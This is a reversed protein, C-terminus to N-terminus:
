GWYVKLFDAFHIGKSIDICLFQVQDTGSFIVMLMYILWSNGYYHQMVFQKQLGLCRLTRKEISVLKCAPEFNFTKPQIQSFKTSLKLNLKPSNQRKEEDRTSEKERENVPQVSTPCIMQETTFQMMNEVVLLIKKSIINMHYHELPTPINAYNERLVEWADECIKIDKQIGQAKALLRYVFCSQREQVGTLKM